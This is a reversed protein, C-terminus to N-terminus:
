MTLGASEAEDALGLWREEASALAEEAATRREAEFFDIRRIEELRRLLRTHATALETVAAASRAAKM